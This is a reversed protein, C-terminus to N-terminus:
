DGDDLSTAGSSSTKVRFGPGRGPKAPLFEIGERELASKIKNLTRVTVNRDTSEVMSLTGPTVQALEAMRQNSINLAVRAARFLNRPFDDPM